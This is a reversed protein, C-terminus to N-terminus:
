AFFGHFAKHFLEARMEFPSRANSARRPLWGMPLQIPSFRLASQGNETKGATGPRQVMKAWRADAQFPYVLILVM